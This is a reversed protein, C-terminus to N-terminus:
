KERHQLATSRRDPRLWRTFNRATKSSVKWSGVFQELAHENDRIPNPDNYWTLWQDRRPIDHLSLGEIKHIGAAIQNETDQIFGHGLHGGAFFSCSTSWERISLAL